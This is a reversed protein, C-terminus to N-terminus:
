GPTSPPEPSRARSLFMSVVGALVILFGAYVFPTGPDSRVALVTTEIASPIYSSQYFSFGRYRLPHNMRITRLLIVGRQPDTLEVDSEFGAAMQTGPYDIKRFDLLKVTVPLERQAPRYEVILPEHGLSLEVADGRVLWAEATASGDQATLHLAERRVDDSRNVFQTTRKARPAHTVIEFGDGLWPHHYRGGPECRSLHRHGADDTTVCSLEGSPHRLLCIANPPLTVSPGLRYTVHARIRRAQGHLAEFEPHRAFALFPESGEPGTLTLAVAPNNLQASRNTVGHATIAFDTFYDKFTAAYPTGEIPIPEDPFPDPVPLEKRVNLEPFHLSVVGRGSTEPSALGLVDLWESRTAPELFLVHAEGWRLGFREPDRAFLWVREEQEEHRLLLQVAPNEEPGDDSVQEEALANPYYRDVLLSITRDHLGVQFRARPEHVWATTEFRTPIVHSFGPNPQRVVLVNVPLQLAREAQGEPIILQGELGFRGGIVGGLLTLIIGLHALLFPTHARQWPYRALAAVALNVALFALLGQFWWSQYIFRQVASTGFRTEYVTGWALVGAIAILLPVAIHLSGLLGLLRKM